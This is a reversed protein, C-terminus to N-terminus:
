EMYRSFDPFDNVGFELARSLIDGVNVNLWDQNGQPVCHRLTVREYNDEPGVRGSFNLEFLQGAKAAEVMPKLIYIDGKRIVTETLSLTFEIGTPVTSRLLTGPPQHRTTVYNPRCQWRSVHLLFTGDELYLEAEHGRVIRRPDLTEAQTVM